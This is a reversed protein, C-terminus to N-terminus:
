FPDFEGTNFFTLSGIPNVTHYFGVSLFNALDAIHEDVVLLDELYVILVEAM